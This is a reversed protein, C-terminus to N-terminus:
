KKKKRAELLFYLDYYSYQISPDKKIRELLDNYHFRDRPNDYKEKIFEEVTPIKVDVPKIKQTIEVKVTILEEPKFDHSPTDISSNYWPTSFHRAYEAKIEDDVLWISVNSEDINLTVITSTSFDRGHYEIDYTLLRNEKKHYLGYKTQTKTIKKM